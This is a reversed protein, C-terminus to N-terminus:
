VREMAKKLLVEKASRSRMQSYKGSFSAIIAMFDDMLEEEITTDNKETLYHLTVGYSRFIEELYTYGFRTYRDKRTAIVDTIEYNKALDVIKKIGKRNENLGSAKDSIQHVITYNNNKAYEELLNLQSQIINKSGSSSRAYAVWKREVKDNEPNEGLFKQVDEETFLYQGTPTQHYDIKEARIWARVTQPTVGALRSFAGIRVSM